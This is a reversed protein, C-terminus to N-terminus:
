GIPPFRRGLRVAPCGTVHVKRVTVIRCVGLKQDLVVSPRQLNLGQNNRPLYHKYHNGFQHEQDAHEDQVHKVEGEQYISGSKHLAARKVPMGKAGGPHITSCM